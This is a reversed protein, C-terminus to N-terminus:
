EAAELRPESADGAAPDHQLFAPTRTEELLGGRSSSFLGCFAGVGMVLATAVLVTKMGNNSGGSLDEHYIVQNPPAASRQDMAAQAAAEARAWDRDNTTDAGDQNFQQLSQGDLSPEGGQELAQISGQQGAEERLEQERAVLEQASAKEMAFGLRDSEFDFAVVHRRLFIDGLVWLNEPGNQLKRGRLQADGGELRRGQNKACYGPSPEKVKRGENTLLWTTEEIVTGNAARVLETTCREGNSLVQSIEEKMLTGTGPLDSLKKLLEGVLGAQGEHKDDAAKVAEQMGQLVQSMEKAKAVEQRVEAKTPAKFLDGPPGPPMGPSFPPAGGKGRLAPGFPMMMPGIMGGPFPGPHNTGYVARGEDRFPHGLVGFPSDHTATPPLQQVQLVCVEENNAMWHKDSKKAPAEQLLHDMEIDLHYLQGDDGHIKLTVQGTLDKKVECDCIVTNGADRDVGCFDDFKPVLTRAINLYEGPPVLMFSTGTEIIATILKPPLDKVEAEAEFAWSGQGGGFRVKVAETWAFPGVDQLRSQRVGVALRAAKNSLYRATEPGLIYTAPHGYSQLNAHLSPGGTLPKKRGFGFVGDWARERRAVLDGEEALIFPQKPVELNGITITDNIVYGGVHGGGEVVSVARPALGFPTPVLHPHFTSSDTAHYFSEQEKQDAACERCRISPLWIDSGDTDLLLSAPQPPSGASVPAVMAFNRAAFNPPVIEADKINGISEPNYGGPPWLTRATVPVWEEEETTELGM